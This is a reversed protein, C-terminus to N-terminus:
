PLARVDDREYIALASVHAVLDESGFARWGPPAADRLRTADLGYLENCGAVVIILALASRDLM